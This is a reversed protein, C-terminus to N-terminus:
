RWGGTERKEEPIRYSGSRIEYDGVILDLHPDYLVLRHGARLVIVEKLRMMEVLGEKSLQELNPKTLPKMDQLKQKNNM